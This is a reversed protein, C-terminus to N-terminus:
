AATTLFCLLYVGSASSMERSVWHFTSNSVISTPALPKMAVEVLDTKALNPRGACFNFLRQLSSETVAAVHEKAM